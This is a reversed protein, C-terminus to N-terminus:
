PKSVLPDNYDSGGSKPASFYTYILKGALTGKFETTEVTKAEGEGPIALGKTKVKAGDKIAADLKAQAEALSSATGTDLRLGRSRLPTADAVTTGERFLHLEIQGLKDDAALESLKQQGINADVIVFPHKKDASYYGYVAYERNPELVWKAFTEAARNSKDFDATNIGNVLLIVGVRETAKMTVHLKQGPQANPYVDGVRRQEVDNYYVRFDVLRELDAKGPSLPSTGTSTEPKKEDPKTVDPPTYPAPGGGLAPKAENPTPKAVASPGGGGLLADFDDGEGADAARSRFARPVVFPRDTDALVAATTAVQAPKMELKHLSKPDKRDFVRLTVTAKKLDATFLVEGVLFADLEVAQSGWRLPYKHKFLDARGTPSLYSASPDLGAAVTGASKAVGFEPSKPDLNRVLANEVRLSMADNLRGDKMNFSKDGVKRVAFKLVGVNKYGRGALQQVLDEANNVVLEDLADARAPGAVLLVAAVGALAPNGWRRM